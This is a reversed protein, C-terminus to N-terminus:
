WPTGTLNKLASLVGSSSPRVVSSLRLLVAERALRFLPSVPDKDAQGTALSEQPPDDQALSHHPNLAGETHWDPEAGMRPKDEITIMKQLGAMHSSPRGMPNRHDRSNSVRPSKSRSSLHSLWPSEETCCDQERPRAPTTHCGTLMKDERCHSRSLRWM